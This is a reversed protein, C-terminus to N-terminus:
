SGDAKLKQKRLYAIYGNLLRLVEGGQTRVAGLHDASGYGEDLCTNLDDMLEMLSGRAQRCFQMNEQWHHRGHGEALNSTLSVAARRMQLALGFREDDPLRRAIGYLARRLKRAAKYVELDEFGFM